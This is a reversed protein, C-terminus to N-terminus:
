AGRSCRACTPLCRSGRAGTTAGADAILTSPSRRSVRSTSPRRCEPSSSAACNATVRVVIQFRPRRAACGRFRSRFRRDGPNGTAPLRRTARREVRHARRGRVKAGRQWAVELTANSSSEVFVRSNAKVGAGDAPGRTSNASSCVAPRPRRSRLQSAGNPAPRVNETPQDNASVGGSKGASVSASPTATTRWNRAAPAVCTPRLHGFSM